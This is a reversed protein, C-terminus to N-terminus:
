HPTQTQLISIEQAEKKDLGRQSINLSVYEACRRTWSLRRSELGIRLPTAHERNGIGPQERLKECEGFVAAQQDGTGVERVSPIYTCVTIVLTATNALIRPYSIISLKYSVPGKGGKDGGNCQGHGYWARWTWAAGMVKHSSYRDFRPLLAM